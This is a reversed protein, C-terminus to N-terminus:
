DVVCRVPYANERINPISIYLKIKNFVFSTSNEKQTSPTATWYYGLDGDLYLRGDKPGLYGSAPFFPSGIAKTKRYGNDIIGRSSKDTKKDLDKWEIVYDHNNTNPSFEKSTPMRWKKGYLYGGAQETLFKCIDGYGKTTNEKTHVVETLYKPNSSNIMGKAHWSHIFTWSLATTSIHNKDQPKYVETENNKWEDMTSIGWLSGWKFYVGRYKEHPSSDDSSYDDFTLKQGDWYINSGAWSLGSICTFTYIKPEFRNNVSTFKIDFKGTGITNATPGSIDNALTFRVTEGKTPNGKGSTVDLSVLAKSDNNIITATWADNSRITFSHQAGDMPYSSKKDFAFLTYNVHKIFLSKNMYSFGNKITFDVKSTKEIFPNQKLEKESIAPPAINFTQRGTGKGKTMTLEGTGPTDGTGYNFGNGNLETSSINCEDNKPDWVVVFQQPTPKTGTKSYFLLESIENKEDANLLTLRLSPVESQHVKIAININGAKVTLTAARSSGSTNMSLLLSINKKSKNGSMDEKAISLWSPASGTMNDIISSIAWGSPHDTLISLKNETDTSTYTNMGLKYEMQSVSLLHQGNSAVNNMEADNWPIVVSEINFPRSIFAEDPSDYGPGAIRVIDFKYHHNRLIDLYTDKGNIKEVFDARYYYTKGDKYTGGLVLCTRQTHELKAKNDSEFLYIENESAVDPSTIEKGSYVLSTYPKIVVPKTAGSPVSATTISGQSWNLAAPAISGKNYYNYVRVSRLKFNDKTESTTLAVSVKALMRTLEVDWSLSQTAPQTSHNISKKGLDGWMPIPKYGNSTKEVVWKNANSLNLKALASAKSDTKVLETELVTSRSNALVVISHYTGEPIKTTFRKKNEVTIIETEAVMRTEKYLGNSDFLLIEISKIVEEEGAPLAYTKPAPIALSFTVAKENDDNKGPKNDIDDDVCSSAICLVLLLAVLRRCIKLTNINMVLALKM